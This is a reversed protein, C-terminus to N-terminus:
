FILAVVNIGTAVYIGIVLFAVVFALAFLKAM